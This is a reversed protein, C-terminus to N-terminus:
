PAEQILTFSVTQGKDLDTVFVDMERQVGTNATVTIRLDDFYKIISTCWSTGDGTDILNYSINSSCNVTDMYYNGALDDVTFSSALSFIPIDITVLNWLHFNAKNKVIDSEIKDIRYYNNKIKLIDNLEITNIVGMPINNASYVYSRKKPNFLSSIYDQYYETYLNSELLAGDYEDYEAGFLLAVGPDTETEAHSPSWYSTSLQELISGNNFAITKTGISRKIAYFIHPKLNKTKLNEDIAAGYQINTIIFDQDDRLREYIMQETPLEINIKEGDLLNGSSDYIYLEEDGYGEKNVGKFNKNLISNPESHKFSLHNFIKGRSIDYNSIDIYKTVDVISGASYYDNVTDIFINTESTPIVVLKFMNVLTKIFEIITLEPMNDSIVYTPTFTTLSGTSDEFFSINRNVTFKPTYTFLEHSEIRVSFIAATFASYDAYLQSTGTFTQRKEEKSGKYIVIDYPVNEYGATITIDVILRYLQSDAPFNVYAGAIYTGGGTVSVADSSNSVALGKGNDLRMYMLDFMSDGLFDRSITINFDTEIQEIITLIKIAPKLEQWYIGGKSLATVDYWLNGEVTADFDSTNSAYFYKRDSILACTLDDRHPISNVVEYPTQNDTLLAKIFDSEYDQDLWSFDLDSLKKTGFLEKINLLQGYFNITYSYPQKKKLNVKQLTIKGDRILIGSAELRATVSVRADFSNNIDANYYHKFIINNPESAPVTFSKTFETTNKTIDQIDLVSSVLNISEDEFLDVRENEIYLAPIM